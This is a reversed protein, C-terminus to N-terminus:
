KEYAEIEAVRAIMQAYPRPDDRLGGNNLRKVIVRIRDTTVPPCRHEFVWQDVNDKGTGITQWDGKAFAQVEYDRIGSLGCFASNTYLLVRGVPSRKPLKVELSQPLAAGVDSSWGPANDDGRGTCLGDVAQFASGQGSSATVTGGRCFNEGWDEPEGELTESDGLEVYVPYGSVFIKLKGEKPELTSERGVFDVLRARMANTSLTAETPYDYSFLCAVQKGGGRYLMGLRNRGITLTRVFTRNQTMQGFNRMGVAAPLLSNDGRMVYWNEFGHEKLYFYCIQNAPMGWSEALLMQQVIFRAQVEAIPTKQFLNQFGSETFWVPKNKDGHKAMLERLRRYQAEIGHEIWGRWHGTYPHVSLIDFYAGGGLQYVRELYSCDIGCVTPGLVQASSDVQKIAQHAAKLYAVYQEPSMIFTAQPENIIEWHKCEGRYKEVTKRVFDAYGEPTTVGKPVNLQVFFRTGTRQASKAAAPLKELMDDAIRELKFGLAASLDINAGHGLEAPQAPPDFLIGPRLVSYDSSSKSPTIKGAPDEVMASVRYYGPEVTPVKLVAIHDAPVAKAPPVNAGRQQRVRPASRATSTRREMRLQSKSEVVVKGFLDTVRWVVHKASGSRRSDSGAVRATAMLPGKQFVIREPRDFELQLPPAALFVEGPKGPTLKLTFEYEKDAKLYNRHWEYPALGSSGFSGPDSPFSLDGAIGVEIKAGNSFLVTFRDCNLPKRVPLVMEPDAGDPLKLLQAAPSFQLRFPLYYWKGDVGDRKGAAASIRTKVRVGDEGFQYELRYDGDSSFLVSDGQSNASVSGVSRMKGLASAVVLNKGGADFQDLSGALSLHARYGTAQVTFGDRGKRITIGGGGKGAGKLEDGGVQNCAVAALILIGALVCSRTVSRMM